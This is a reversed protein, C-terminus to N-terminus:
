HYIRLFSNQKFLRPSINFTNLEGDSNKKITYGEPPSNYTEIQTSSKGILNNKEKMSLLIDTNSLNNQPVFNNNEYSISEVIQLTLLNSSSLGFAKKNYPITPKFNKSVKNVKTKPEFIYNQNGYKSIDVHNIYSSIEQIPNNMQKAKLYELQQSSDLCAEEKRFRTLDQEMLLFNLEKSVLLAISSPTVNGFQYKWSDIFEFNPNYFYPNVLVKSSYLENDISLNENRIDIWSLNAFKYFLNYYGLDDKTEHLIDANNNKYYKLFLKTIEDKQLDDLDLNDNNQIKDKIEPIYRNEIVSDGWRNGSIYDEMFTNERLVKYLSNIEKKSIVDIFNPCKTEGYQLWYKRLTVIHPQKTYVDGSSLNM